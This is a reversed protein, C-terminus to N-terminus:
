KDRKKADEVYKEVISKNDLQCANLCDHIFREDLNMLDYEKM